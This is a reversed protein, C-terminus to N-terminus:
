IREACTLRVTISDGARFTSKSTEIRLHVEGEPLQARGACGSKVRISRFGVALVVTPTQRVNM